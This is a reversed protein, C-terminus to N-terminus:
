MARVKFYLSRSSTNRVTLSREGSGTTGDLNAFRVPADAKIVLFRWTGSALDIAGGTRNVLRVEVTDAASVYASATLDQLDYPASFAVFDGLEAGYVTATLTAQGPSALNAPDITASGRTVSLTESQEMGAVTGDASESRVVSWNWPVEGLNHPFEREGGAPISLWESEYQQRTGDLVHQEAEDYSMRTGSRRPM